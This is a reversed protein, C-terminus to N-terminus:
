TLKEGCTMCFKSNPPSSHGNSCVLRPSAAGPSVPAAPGRRRMWLFAGAAIVGVLLLLGIIAPAAVGGSGDTQRQPPDLTVPTAGPAMAVQARPTPTPTGTPRPTPTLTPTPTITPTQTPTPSPTAPAQRFDYRWLGGRETYALLTRPEVGVVAVQAIGGPLPEGVAYWVDGGSLSAFAQRGDHAFLLSPNASDPELARLSSNDPLGEAPKWLAGSDHSVLLGGSTLALLHQADLPDILVREVWWRDNTSAAWSQGGDRSLHVGSSTAAAILTEDQPSLALDMAQVGSSLPLVGWADGGDNSVLVQGRDNLVYLKEPSTPSIWVTQVSTSEPLLTNEWQQGGDQSSMLGYGSSAYVIQPDSPSWRFTALQDSTTLGPISAWTMGGDESQGIGESTNAVLRDPQSPHVALIEVWAPRDATGIWDLGGNQSKFLGYDTLLYVVTPVKPDVVIQRVENAALSQGSVEWTAGGDASVAQRDTRALLLSDGAFSWTAGWWEDTSPAVPQWSGGRDASRWPGNNGAAFVADANAPDLALSYVSRGPSSADDLESSRWTKGGDHSSFIGQGDVALYAAAGDASQAFATAQGPVPLGASAWTQGGDASRMTDQWGFAWIVNPNARDLQFWQVDSLLGPALEQWNAGRDLSRFMRGNSTSYFVDPTLPDIQFQGPEPVDPLALAIASWQGGGDSSLFAGDSTFAYVQAPAQPDVAISRVNYGQLSYTTWEGEDAQAATVLPLLGFCVAALVGLLIPRKLQFM